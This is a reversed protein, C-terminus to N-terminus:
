SVLLLESLFGQELFLPRHEELSVNRSARQRYAGTKLRFCFLHSEHGRGATSLLVFVLFYSSFAPLVFSSPTIM